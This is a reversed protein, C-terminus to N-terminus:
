RLLFCVTVGEGVVGSFHWWVMKYFTISKCRVAPLTANRWISTVRSLAPQPNANTARFIVLWLSLFFQGYFLAVCIIPLTSLLLLQLVVTASQKKSSLTFLRFYTHIINNFFSQKPNRLTFYSRYVPLTPLHLFNIDFKRLIECVLFIM